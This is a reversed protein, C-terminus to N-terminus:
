PPYRSQVLTTLGNLEGDIARFARRANETEVTRKIRANRSM